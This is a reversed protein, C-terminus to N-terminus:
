SGGPFRVPFSEARGSEVNGCKFTRRKGSRSCRGASGADSCDYSTKGGVCKRGCRDGDPKRGGAPTKGSQDRHEARPLRDISTGVQVQMDMYARMCDTTVPIDNTLMMAAGGKSQDNVPIGAQEIIHQLQTQLTQPLENWAQSQAQEAAEGFTQRSQQGSYHAKYLNEQNLPMKNKLLYLIDNSGVQLDVDTGAIKAGTSTFVLNSVDDQDVKAQALVNALADKHAQDRMSNVIDMLDSLSASGVDIGMQRLKQIEETSLSRAIEKADERAQEEDSIEQQQESKAKEQMDRRYEEFNDMVTQANTEVKATRDYQVQEVAEFADMTGVASAYNQNAAAREYTSYANAAEQSNKININQM